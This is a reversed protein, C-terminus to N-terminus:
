AHEKNKYYKIVKDSILIGLSADDDFLNTNKFDLLVQKVFGTLLEDSFAEHNKKLFEDLENLLKTIILNSSRYYTDGEVSIIINSELSNIGDSYFILIDGSHSALSLNVSTTLLEESGSNHSIHRTLAGAPNVHPLMLESYRYPIDSYPNEAYDGPINLIGGNGLYKIKVKDELETSAYIFTTGGNLKLALVEHVIRNLFHKIEENKKFLKETQNIVHQAVEGSQPFEGIGDCIVLAKKQGEVFCATRDQKSKVDIHGVGIYM